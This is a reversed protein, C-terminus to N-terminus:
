AETRIEEHREAGKKNIQGIEMLLLRGSWESHISMQYNDLLGLEMPEEMPTLTLAVRSLAHHFTSNTTYVEKDMRKNHRTKSLFHFAPTCKNQCHQM